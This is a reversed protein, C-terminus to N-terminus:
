TEHARLHTYSVTRIRPDVRGYNASADSDGEKMMSAERFNTNKICYELLKECEKKSVAQPFVHFM